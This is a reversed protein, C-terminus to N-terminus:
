ERNRYLFKTSIDVKKAPRRSQRKYVDVDELSIGGASKPRDILLTRVGAARSAELKEEMGGAKGGDKTVLFRCKFERLLALNM